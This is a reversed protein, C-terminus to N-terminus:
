KKKRQGHKESVLESFSHIINFEKKEDDTLDANGPRVVICTKMGALTAPRAERTVDTLFLMEEKKIGIDKSINQYSGKEVKSGITTDFHGSFLELLDGKDSHGFLLKQAEISGSSYIYVKRDESIWQKIAPVVDDYVEGKVQGTQYSARWMHGQLQKLGTTKRDSDMQWLVNKTIADQVTKMKEEDDKSDELDPIAVVGEIKAKTDAEAQKRLELVDQQCEEEDWHTKIYECVNERIYPFLVNKVFVIPTTTGEIDLLIAKIDELLSDSSSSSRKKPSSM